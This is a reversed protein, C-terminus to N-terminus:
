RSEPQMRNPIAKMTPKAAFARLAPLQRRGEALHAPQQLRAPLRSYIWIRRRVSIAGGAITPTTMVSAIRRPMIPKSATMCDHAAMEAM